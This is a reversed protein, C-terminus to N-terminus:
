TGHRWLSGRGGQLSHTQREPLTWRKYTGDWPDNGTSGHRELPQPKRYLLLPRFFLCAGSLGPSRGRHRVLLSYRGNTKDKFQVVEVEPFKSFATLAERPSPSSLVLNINRVVEMKRRISGALDAREIKSHTLLRQRMERAAGIVEGYRFRGQYRRVQQIGQLIKEQTKQGFGQLTILRNELCAYELEGITKIDLADFLTRIKKPGLGPIKLMELLGSPISGKLEEHFPSRGTNVLETIQKEITEGIGKIEKLRGAQIISKLDEELTEISRAANAYAKIKFPNEGKLELLLAIEQLIAGISRNNQEKEMSRGAEVIKGWRM